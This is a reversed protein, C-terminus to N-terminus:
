DLTSRALTLLNKHVDIVQPILLNQEDNHIIFDCRSMKEAENMQNKMRLRVTEETVSDRKMVRAIRLMEPAHVGIVKDVSKWADSEFMLAAEKIVFPASQNKFWSEAHAITGPHVIANLLQLKDPNNFVITALYQRNLTGNIFTDEGFSAVLSKKLGDDENMLRKAETDTYYVPIGLLEFIKAVTTKGCGIGGTLGIKLM